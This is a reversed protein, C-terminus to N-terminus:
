PIERFLFAAGPVAAIPGQPILCGDPAVAFATVNGQAENALVLLDAEEILLFFRPSAGGSPVHQILELDGSADLRFVAISDHGRNTAYVRNRAANLGLHGGLSDGSFEAPLTSYSQRASLRSGAVELVTLTSALEGLLLALPRRPHFVLQRPGTGPPAQYAISPEAVPVCDDGLSVTLVQDTGLDVHFLQNRLFAACHAHPAEQREVDPGHGQDTLVSAPAMPTGTDPDLQFLAVSGSGYNAVALVRDDLGLAVHCPRDGQTGARALAEWGGSSRRWAGVSGEAQEDVLYHCRFRSSYVGFSANRIAPEATGLHWADRDRWLPYLGEGGARAYSGVHLRIEADQPRLAV